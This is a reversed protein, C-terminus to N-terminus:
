GRAFPAGRAREALTPLPLLAQSASPLGALHRALAMAALGHEEDTATDGRGGNNVFVDVIGARAVGPTRPDHRLLELQLRRGDSGQLRVALAGEETCFTDLVTCSGFRAGAAVGFAALEAAGAREGARGTVSPTAPPRSSPAHLARRAALAATAGIGGLFSRRGLMKSEFSARHGYAL